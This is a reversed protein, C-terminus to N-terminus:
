QNLFTLRRNRSAGCVLLQRAGEHRMSSSSVCDRGTDTCNSGFCNRTVEVAAYVSSVCATTLAIEAKRVPLPVSSEGARWGSLMSEILASGSTALAEVGNSSPAM